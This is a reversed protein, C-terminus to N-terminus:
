ASKTQNNMVKNLYTTFVHISFGVVDDDDNTILEDKIEMDDGWYDEFLIM